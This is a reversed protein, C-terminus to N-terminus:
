FDDIKVITKYKIRKKDEDQTDTLEYHWSAYRIFQEYSELNKYEDPIEKIYGIKFEYYNEKGIGISDSSMGGLSIYDIIEESLEFEYISENMQNGNNEIYIYKHKNKNNSIYILLDLTRYDFREFNIENKNQNKKLFKKHENIAVGEWYGLYDKINLVNENEEDYVMIHKTKGDIKVVFRGINYTKPYKISYKSIYFPSKEKYTRGTEIVEKVTRNGKTVLNLNRMDESSLFPNKFRQPNRNLILTDQKYKEQSTPKPEPEKRQKIIKKVSHRFKQKGGLGGKQKRTRKRTKRKTKRTRKKQNKRTKRKTRKSHSKRQNKRTRKKSVKRVRKKRVTKKM